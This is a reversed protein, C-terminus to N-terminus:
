LYFVGPANYSRTPNGPCACDGVVGVCMCAHVCVYECLMTHVHLIKPARAIALLVWVCVRMYACMSVRVFVCIFVCVHLCMCARVCVRVRVSVSKYRLREM